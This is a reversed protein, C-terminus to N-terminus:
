PNLALFPDSFYCQTLKLRERKIEENTTESACRKAFIRKFARFLDEFASFPM